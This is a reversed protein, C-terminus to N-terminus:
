DQPPWFVFDDSGGTKSTSEADGWQRSHVGGDDTGNISRSYLRPGQPTVRYSFDGATFPDVRVPDDPTAIEDLTAPWRGTQAHFLNMRYSLQTARRGAEVRHEIEYARGLSPVFDRFGGPMADRLEQMPADLDASRVTPFGTDQRRKLERFATDARDIVDRVEQPQTQELQTLDDASMKPPEGFYRTLQEWRQPDFQAQGGPQRPHFLYQATDMFAAHEFPVWHSRRVNQGDTSELMQLTASIDAANNFVGKSLALRAHEYTLQKEAVSVLHEILTFGGNVQNSGRLVAALSERMAEPPVVGGQQRWAASITAKMISRHAALSPLLYNLLLQPHDGSPRTLGGYRGPAQTALQFQQIFPAMTQYSAEWDPNALPDWPGWGGKREGNLMDLLQWQPQTQMLTEYADTANDQANLQEFWTVYDFPQDLDAKPGFGEEDLTPGADADPTLPPAFPEWSEQPAPPNAGGPSSGSGDGPDPSGAPAASAQGPPGSSPDATNPMNADSAPAPSADGSEAAATETGNEDEAGTPQTTSAPMRAAYLMLLTGDNRSVMAADLAGRLRVGPEERWHMGGELLYTVVQRNRCIVARATGGRAPLVQSLMDAMQVRQAPKFRLGDPSVWQQVALKAQREGAQGQFGVIFLNVQRAIWAACPHADTAGPLPIRVQSDMRYHLGDRTTASAVICGDRSREQPSLTFYMRVYGGPLPLLSAHAARATIEGRPELVIPRPRSWTQGEDASKMVALVAHDPQAPDVIDCVAMLEESPLRILDPAAARALHLAGKQFLIGDTSSAWWLGITCIPGNCPEGAPRSVPSAAAPSEQAPLGVTLASSLMWAVLM